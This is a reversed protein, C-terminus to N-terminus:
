RKRLKEIIGGLTMKQRRERFAEAGLLGPYRACLLATGTWRRLASDNRKVSEHWAPMYKSNYLWESQLERRRRPDLLTSKDWLWPEAMALYEALPDDKGQQSRQTPQIRFCAIPEDLRQFKAGAILMRCWYEYAFSSGPKAHFPGTKEFISRRWFTEPQVLERNGRWVHEYDLIDDLSSIDGFHEILEQGAQDVILCGGYVLDAAPADQFKQAIHAFAGPLYFDDSNIFALISGTTRQMGKNLADVQGQDPESVVGDLFPEYKRIIALTDDTSGGDVVLYELNPYAQLLVSRMTHEIFRGQNLSPTVISIRPWEAGNPMRETLAPSEETWPWGIKEHPPPPLDALRLASTQKPM